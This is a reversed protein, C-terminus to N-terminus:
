VSKPRTDPSASRSAEAPTAIPAAAGPLTQGRARVDEAEDSRKFTLKTYTQGLAKACVAWIGLAGIAAGLTIRISVGQSAIIAMLALSSLAKGARDVVMDILAKAKYKQTDTLPVYLTEKTVQHLSYNLGRDAAALAVALAVTPLIAIGITALGMAVPPVLLAAPKRPLLLPVAILQAVLATASM